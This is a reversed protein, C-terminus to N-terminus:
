HMMFSFCGALEIADHRYQEHLVVADRNWTPADPGESTFQLPCSLLGDGRFAVTDVLGVIFEFGAAWELIRSFEGKGSCARRLEDHLEPFQWWSGRLFERSLEETADISSLEVRLEEVAAPERHSVFSWGDCDDEDELAFRDDLAAYAAQLARSEEVAARVAIPSAAASPGDIGVKPKETCGREERVWVLRLHNIKRKKDPSNTM